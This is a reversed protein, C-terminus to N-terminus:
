HLGGHAFGPRGPALRSRKYTASRGFVQGGDEFDLVFGEGVRVPGGLVKRDVVAEDGLEVAADGTEQNGALRKWGGCAGAGFAFDQVDRHVAFIAAAADSGSQKALFETFLCNVEKFHPGGIEARLLKVPFKAEDLDGPPRFVIVGRDFGSNDHLHFSALKQIAVLRSGAPRSHIFASM